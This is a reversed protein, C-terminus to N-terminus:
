GGAPSPYDPPQDEPALETLLTVSSADDYLGSGSASPWNRLTYREGGNAYRYQGVGQAGVEDPGELTPDWWILAADENGSRDVGPFLGTRGWSQLPLLPTGGTPPSRFLGEGYTEPTLDPGALTIGTFLQAISPAIVGYTNNPPPTGHFWQYLSYYPDIEEEELAGTLQVGFANVWQAQDFTRAFIATDALVNPGIIWEPFYDQATAESTFSAPMIPDGTFILTTVGAEKFRTIVTRAIEQARNLDLFFEADTEVEIGREDLGDVLANFNGEYQNEANNYHLIGYVREQEQLAPDGAYQAPEGPPAQKSVMEATLVAAQEPAIGNTYLYPAHDELFETSMALACTGICVVGRAALEDAFTPIALQPGGWVAFPEKDAIAIADARAAEVDSSAGSGVFCEVVVQRGYLEYYENFMDVYGQATECATEPSVEAGAGRITASLLPDAAPDTQYYVVKIEDATVGPSTAGGNDGDFPEVCPAARLLPIAVQGTDPDCNDGFEVDEGLLDAKEPTMPGSRILQEESGVDAGATDDDDGDDDGAFVVTVLVIVLVIVIILGFPGYRRLARATGTQNSPM